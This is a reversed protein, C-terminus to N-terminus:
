AGHERELEVVAGIKAEPTLEARVDEIGAERAVAHATQQNDGTLMVTRINM